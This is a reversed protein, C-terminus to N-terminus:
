QGLNSQPRSPLPLPALPPAPSPIIVAAASIPDSNNMAMPPPALLPPSPLVSPGFAPHSEFACYCATTFAYPLHAAWGTCALASSKLRRISPSHRTLLRSQLCTRYRGKYLRAIGRKCRHVSPTSKDWGRITSLNEDSARGITRLRWEPLHLNSWRPLRQVRFQSSPQRTCLNPPITWVRIM